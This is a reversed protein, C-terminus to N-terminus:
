RNRENSSKVLCNEYNQCVRHRYTCTSPLEVMSRCESAGHGKKGCKYRTTEHKMRCQLVYHGKQGCRYCVLEVHKPAQRPQKMIILHLNEAKKCLEDIENEKPDEDFKKTQQFLPVASGDMMKIKEAYEFCSKKITEYDKAGRFLVFHFFKQDLKVAHRLLDFEVNEGM